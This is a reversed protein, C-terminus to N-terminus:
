KKQAKNTGGYLSGSSKLHITHDEITVVVVPEMDTSEWNQETNDDDHSLDSLNPVLKYKLENGASSLFQYTHENHSTQDTVTIYKYYGESVKTKASEGNPLQSEKSKAVGARAGNKTTEPDKTDYLSITHQTNLTTNQAHANFLVTNGKGDTDDLANNLENNSPKTSGAGTTGAGTTGAGTTGAGTTGAGTTGAGTTGAGTTGAGTTGAGTTGAGTTGAGTTGAGISSGMIPKWPKLYTNDINFGGSFTTDAYGGGGWISSGSGPFYGWGGSGTGGWISSGFGTGGVSSSGSKNMMAFIGLTTVAGFLRGALNAWVNPKKYGGGNGGYIYFNTSGLDIHFGDDLPNYRHDAECSGGYVLSRKNNNYGDYHEHGPIYTM